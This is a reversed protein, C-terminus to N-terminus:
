KYINLTMFKMQGNKTVYGRGKLTFINITSMKDNEVLSICKYLIWYCFYNTNMISYLTGERLTVEKLTVNKM